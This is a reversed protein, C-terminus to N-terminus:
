FQYVTMTLSGTYAGAAQSSISTGTTARFNVPFSQVGMSNSITPTCLDGAVHWNPGGIPHEWETLLSFTGDTFATGTLEAYIECNSEITATVSGNQTENAAGSFVLATPNSWVVSAYPLVEANLIVTDSVGVTPSINGEAAFATGVMVFVLCVMLLLAIRKM